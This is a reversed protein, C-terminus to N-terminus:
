KIVISKSRIANASFYGLAGNTLNTVPNAPTATQGGFGQTIHRLQEFYNFVPKDITFLFIVISDGTQLSPDTHIIEQTVVNGDRLLDNDAYISNSFSGNIKEVFRYNNEIGKPDHYQIRVYKVKTGRGFGMTFSDQSISDIAVANPMTSVATYTKGESTVSLTYTRGPVGPFAPASYSGPKSEILTAHNGKDDSIFVSAGTVEPFTNPEDFNVSKSLKVSCSAPQDSVSGEIILRPSSANLNINVVKTCSVLSFITGLIISLLILDRKM